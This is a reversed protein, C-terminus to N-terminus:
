CTWFFYMYLFLVYVGLLQKGCKVAIALAAELRQIRVNLDQTIKKEEKLQTEVDAQAHLGGDGEEGTCVHLLSNSAMYHICCIIFGDVYVGERQILTRRKADSARKRQREAEPDKVRIKGHHRKMHKAICADQTVGAEFTTICEECHWKGDDDAPNFATVLVMQKEGDGTKEVRLEEDDDRDKEERKMGKSGGEGKGGKSGGEGKGGEEGKLDSEVGEKMSLIRPSRGGVTKGRKSHVLGTEKEEENEENQVKEEEMEDGMDVKEEMGESAASIKPQVKRRGRGGGAKKKEDKAENEGEEEKKKGGKTGLEEGGGGDGFDDGDKEGDVGDGHEAGADGKIGNTFENAAIDDFAGEAGDRGIGGVGGAGVGGDGGVGSGGTGAAGFPNPFKAMMEQFIKLQEAAEDDAKKKMEALRRMFEEQMKAQMELLQANMLQQDM